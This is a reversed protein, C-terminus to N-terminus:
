GRRGAFRSWLFPSRRAPRSRPRGHLQCSPQRCRQRILGTRVDAANRLNEIAMADIVQHDPSHSGLGVSGLSGGPIEVAQDPACALVEVSQSGGHALQIRAQPDLSETVFLGGKNLTSRGYTRAGTGGLRITSTVTLVPDGVPPRVTMTQYGKGEYDWMGTQAGVEFVPVVNAVVEVHGELCTALRLLTGTAAADGPARRYDPRREEETVPQVVLLDQVLLWGSPTHWTTELVMTGPLYHRQHPVNTSTPGFRFNGAARDLLAAFVSPSDPRPLCLWEVSGDPAVLCSNECDSLFGYDAIPPFSEPQLDTGANETM